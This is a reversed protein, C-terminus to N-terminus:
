GPYNTFASKAFAKQAVFMNVLCHKNVVAYIIRIAGRLPATDGYGFQLCTGLKQFVTAM